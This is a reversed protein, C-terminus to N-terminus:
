RATSSKLQLIGSQSFDFGPLPGVTFTATADGDADIAMTMSWTTYIGPQFGGAELDSLTGQFQLCKMREACGDIARGIARFTGVLSKGGFTGETKVIEAKPTTVWMEITDYLGLSVNMAIGSFPIKVPPPTNQTFAPAAAIIFLGIAAVISKMM